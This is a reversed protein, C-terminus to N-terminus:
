KLIALSGTKTVGADIDQITYLYIGSSITTKSDSLLDWAHEGGPMITNEGGFNEFWRIDEGVYTDAHHEFTKVVDGAATYI